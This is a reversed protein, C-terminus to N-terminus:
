RIRDVVLVAVAGAVFALAVIWWDAGAIAALM